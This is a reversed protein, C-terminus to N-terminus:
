KKKIVYENETKTYDVNMTLCLMSLLTDPDENYFTGTMTLNNLEEDAIIFKMNYFRELEGTIELLSSKNFVLGGNMWGLLKEADVQAPQTPTRSSILISSQSKALKVSKSTDLEDALSVLGEKVVVKTKEDRAWVNFKTGLVTIKANGTTVIFPRGDKKVSFFGEGNLKIERIKDNLPETYQISSGSNLMVTSGDPLDITKHVGNETSVETLKYQPGNNGITFYIVSAAVLFLGIVFAPKLGQGFISQLSSSIKERVSQKHVSKNLELKQSLMMWEENVDPVQTAHPQTENWIEKLREYEDINDRSENLWSNLLERESDDINGTIDKICLSILREKRM